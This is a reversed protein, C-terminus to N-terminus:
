FLHAIRFKLHTKTSKMTDVLQILSTTCHAKGIADLYATYYSESDLPGDRPNIYQTRIFSDSVSAAHRKRHRKLENIQNNPYSHTPRFSNEAADYTWCKQCPKKEDAQVIGDGIMISQSCIIMNFPLKTYLSYKFEFSFNFTCKTHAIGKRILFKRLM